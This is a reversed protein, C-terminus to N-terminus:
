TSPHFTSPVRLRPSNWHRAGELLDSRPPRRSATTRHHRSRTNPRYQNATNLQRAAAELTQAQANADTALSALRHEATRNLLATIGYAPSIVLREQHRWVILKLRHVAAPIRTRNLSSLRRLTNPSIDVIRDRLPPQAEPRKVQRGCATVMATFEVSPDPLTNPRPGIHRDVGGSHTTNSDILALKTKSRFRPRSSVAENNPHHAHRDPYALQSTSHPRM